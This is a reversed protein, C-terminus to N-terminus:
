LEFNLTGTGDNQPRKTPLGAGGGTAARYTRTPAPLDQYGAGKVCGPLKDPGTRVSFAM